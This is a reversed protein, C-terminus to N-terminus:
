WPGGMVRTDHVVGVVCQPAPGQMRCAPRGCGGCAGSCGCVM